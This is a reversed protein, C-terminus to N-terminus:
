QVVPSYTEWYDDGEIQMGGHACLRAKPKLYTSDPLSKRKFSSIAMIVKNEKQIKNWEELEWVEANNLDKIEKAMALIFKTWDPQQMADKYHFTTTDSAKAILALPHGFNLTGNILWQQQQQQDVYRTLFHASEKMM